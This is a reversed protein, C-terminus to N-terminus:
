KDGGDSLAGLNLTQNDEYRELDAISVGEPLAVYPNNKPGYSVWAEVGRKATAIWAGDESQGLILFKAGQRLMALVKGNDESPASRVNLGWSALVTGLGFVDPFGVLESIYSSDSTRMVNQAIANWMWQDMNVDMFSQWEGTDTFGLVGMSNRYYVWNLFADATIENTDGKAWSQRLLLVQDVTLKAGSFLKDDKDLGLIDHLPKLDEMWSQDYTVSAVPKSDPALTDPYPSGFGDWTDPHGTTKNTSRPDDRYGFGVNANFVHGLEHLLLNPLPYTLREMAANRYFTIDRGVVEALAGKSHTEDSLILNIDGIIRRFATIDDWDLGNRRAMDGLAAAAMELGVHAMRVRLLDWAEAGEASVFSVGYTTEILTRYNAILPNRNNESEDVSADYAEYADAWGTNLRHPRRFDHIDRNMLYTLYAAAEATDGDDIGNEGFLKLIAEVNGQLAPPIGEHQSFILVEHLLPNQRAALYAEMEILNSPLRLPGTEGRLEGINRLSEETVVYDPLSSDALFGTEGADFMKDSKKGPAQTEGDSPEGNSAVDPRSRGASRSERVKNVHEEHKEARQKDFATYVVSPPVYEPTSPPKRNRDRSPHDEPLGIVPKDGPDFNDPVKSPNNVIFKEGDFVISGEEDSSFGRFAM